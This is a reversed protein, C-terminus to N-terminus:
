LRERANEMALAAFHLQLALPMKDFEDEFRNSRETYSEPKPPKDEFPPNPTASWGIDGLPIQQELEDIRQQTANLWVHLGPKDVPVDVKEFTKNVARANEQTTEWHTHGQSDKATYFIM